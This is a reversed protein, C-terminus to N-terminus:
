RRAKDVDIGNRKNAVVDYLFSKDGRGRWEFGAPADGKGGLVLEKIFHIDGASLGNATFEPMLDNDHILIDFIGISAHEHEFGKAIAFHSLFMSEYMHSFPGHGLDHILGAIEVCLIDQPTIDLEPQNKALATVFKKALHSVGISHDFRKNSAGSFVYNVGGLQSIDRLRQFHPTDIIRVCLNSVEIHGHIHDNFVKSMAEKVTVKSRSASLVAGVLSSANILDLTPMADILFDRLDNHSNRYPACSNFLDAEGEMFTEQLATIIADTRRSAHLAARISEFSMSRCKDCSGTDTHRRSIKFYKRTSITTIIM